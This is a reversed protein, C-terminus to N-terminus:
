AEVEPEPIWKNEFANCIKACVVSASLNFGSVCLKETVYPPDISGRSLGGVVFVVSKGDDPLKDVWDQLDVKHEVHASTGVIRCGVPLYQTVPNKVTKLLQRRLTTARVRQSKTLEVWLRSFQWFSRPVHLQPHVEVLVGKQSSIYVQPPNPRPLSPPLSPPLPPFAHTFAPLIPPPSPHLYPPLSPPPPPPPPPPAGAATGHVIPRLMTGRPDWASWGPSDETKGGCSCPPDRRM